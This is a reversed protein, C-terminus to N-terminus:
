RKASEIEALRVKLVREFVSFRDAHPVPIMGVNKGLEMALDTKPDYVPWKPAGAGNPDGTAAFRTWYGTMLKVLRWDDADPDGWQSKRFFGGGMFALDLGHFAGLVERAYEGKAPYSFYYLWAKQGARVMDRVLSRVTQGRQYDATLALWAARVEADTKASYVRLVEDAYKDFHVRMWNRYNAVTPEDVQAFTVTGEDANSGALVPIKMQRGAGFTVAPQEVLVWGDVTGGSYLFSLVEPVHAAAKVVAEASQARMERLAKPGPEIGM